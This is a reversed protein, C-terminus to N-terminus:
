FVVKLALQLTRKGGNFQQANLFNSSSVNAYSTSLGNVNDQFVDLNVLSFNGHNFVNFATVAFEVYRSEGWFPVRKSVSMNWINVGPTSVSNRGSKTLPGTPIAGLQGVVFQANPDIPFYGVVSRNGSVTRVTGNPNPPPTPQGVACGSVVGNSNISGIALSTSTAGTSANRCVFGVGTGTGPTGAPNFFARDGASDLNGNTDVGSLPTIPQGTQAIFTASYRWGSVVSKVFRNESSTFKPLDYIWSLAFKSRIDLVSRGREGAIDSASEPRRPNVRSSFLENTANDINHAYTYNARLFLGHTFRQIFDVSGSHYISSGAPDFATVFGGDFGQASFRLDRLNLAAQRTPSASTFSKSLADSKSAFTPLGPFGNEFITISNRRIQVPLFLGHTGLYRVEVGANKWLEHQVGLSWTYVEPAKTDVIIAQTASRADAQTTPPVNVQALGGGALFGTGTACWAPPTGAAGSCTLPPNQETQLQPPLQLLILNQFTVDYALSFGGRVAWKGNGFPDYAFGIHPGFNNKDDRPARFDFVGPLTAISNLTQLNADRPNGSWEYRVGLNLTLKRTVKWDDQAFLYVANQNGAFFGSGAGRLAGNLGDPVLDNIFTQLNAYDWEGRARPLFDSPAIWHRWEAGWKFTHPGRVYSMQDVIQYVNQAGSQPSNGNPGINLQLRDIEVNPFNSFNSPVGFGNTHRSYSARFDNVLRNSITWVDTVIAKHDNSFRSGTFEAIPLDLNQNPARFRDYLYRLRISHKSLNIDGSTSISHENFFDPASAQFEGVPIPTGNVTQVKAPNAAPAVPFHSLVDKVSQNAALANLATLGAATPALVSVSSAARGRNNFEYAGFAFVKKKLIPGGLSGGARNRDFRRPQTLGSQKELNDMALFNRNVNYEHGEGHWQNTGSKTIVNFQGGASHGYEASFQNTILQFEQVADQIVDIQPGTVTVNNNDVGDIQFGNMRPRTGGISGGQGLVGSGMLTTNPALASLAFVSGNLQGVPLQAVRSDFTNSLQSSVTQVIEAGATVEVTATTAGVELTGNAEVVQNSAVSVDRRVYTSFGKAKVTVTYNGVLMFPFVYIGANSTKTTQVVGTAQNTATVAAEPVVAGAPDLITGRLTGDLRQGLAVPVVLLVALLSAFLVSLPKPM